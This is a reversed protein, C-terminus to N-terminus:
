RRPRFHQGNPNARYYTRARTQYDGWRNPTFGRLAPPPARMVRWPGRYSPGSYWGGGFAYYYTGGLFFLPDTYDMAVYAGASPLWVMEPSWSAPPPPPVGAYVPSAYAPYGSYYASPYPVCGALGLGILCPALWLLNRRTRM